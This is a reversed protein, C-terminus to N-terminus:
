QQAGGSTMQAQKQPSIALRSFIQLGGDAAQEPLAAGETLFSEFFTDLEANGSQDGAATATANTISADVIGSVSVGGPARTMSAPAAVVPTVAPVLAPALGPPALAGPARSSPALASGPTGGLASGLWASVSYPHVPPLGAAGGPVAAGISGHSGDSGVSDRSYTHRLTRTRAGHAAGGGAAHVVGGHVGARATHPVGDVGPSGPSEKGSSSAPDSGASDRSFSRRLM